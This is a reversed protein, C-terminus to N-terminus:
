ADDGKQTYDMEQQFDCREGAMWKHLAPLKDARSPDRFWGTGDVSEVGIDDCYWVKDINNVRGVHVRPFNDVWMKATQWKFKDTGGVFVVGADSPVDKATMGDQVAFASTWGTAFIEPSYKGWNSLTKERDAVVDPVLAWLPTKHMLRIQEIMERWAEVSWREGKDWAVFADNDLVFPMWDKFPTKRWHSPGLLVGVKKDYAGAAYHWM